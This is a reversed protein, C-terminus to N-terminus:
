AAQQEDSAPQAAADDDISAQSARAEKERLKQAQRERTAKAENHFQMLELLTNADVPVTKGERAAEPLAEVEALARMTDIPLRQAFNEVYTVIRTVQQKPLNRGNIISKTVRSKGIKAAKALQADIIAGTGEGHQRLLAIAEDASIHGKLVHLHVDRNAKGLVLLREVTARESGTRDAIEQIGHNLTVHLLKFRLAIELQTYEKKKGATVQAFKRDSDNGKFEQCLILDVPLGRNRAILYAKHRQHGDHIKTRNDETNFVELAPLSGGAMLTTVMSEVYEDLDARPVDDLEIRINDEDPVLEDLPVKFMDDRKISSGEQRSIAKMSKAMAVRM